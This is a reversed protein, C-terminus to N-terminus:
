RSFHDYGGQHLDYLFNKEKVIKIEPLGKVAKGIVTCLVGFKDKFVNLKEEITKRDGGSVTFLLEYDEGDNLAHNFALDKNKGALMYASGSIPISDYEIHFGVKSAQAIHFIDKSLGDSLDIMSTVNLNEILWASEYVRPSFDLHKGCISGGLSGTVCLFDGEGANDRYRVNQKKVMGVVAVSIFIEKESSALDGGALACAFKDACNKMGLYFNDLWGVPLDPLLALGVTAWLPKGGMAAIDSINRALAKWGVKSPQATEFQFHKGSVLSDQTLLLYQDGCCSFLAVATDDGIGKILDPRSSQYKSIMKILDSESLRGIKTKSFDKDPM